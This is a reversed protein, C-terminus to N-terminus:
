SCTTHAVKIGLIYTSYGCEDYKIKWLPLGLLNVRKSMLKEKIKVLGFCRKSEHEWRHANLLCVCRRIIMPIAGTPAIEEQMFATAYARITAQAQDSREQDHTFILRGLWFHLLVERRQPLLGNKKYYEWVLKAILLNDLAAGDKKNYAADTTSGERCIYHYLKDTLYYVHRTHAAYSYLFYPDEFKVGEPFRLGHQRVLERRFIKNWVNYDCQKLLADDLPFEGEAPVHFYREMGEVDRQLNGYHMQVGCRAMDVEASHSIAKVMRECMSTDYYDDSDCFMLYDATAADMGMNRASSQGGNAKSLVRLRVDRAAYEELIRACGDTSGDNVCIIEIDELTQSLLSDLCAPLYSEVNYVPVIISVKPM